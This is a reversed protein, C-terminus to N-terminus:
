YLRNLVNIFLFIFIQLVDCHFILFAYDPLSSQFTKGVEGGLNLFHLIYTYIHTHTFPTPNYM